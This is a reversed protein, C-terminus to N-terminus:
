TRAAAATPPCSVPTWCGPTPSGAARTGSGTCPSPPAAARAASVPPARTQPVGYEEANMRGTVVTYGEARLIVAMAEWVPLVTPVQELMVTRYPRGGDLSELTWRLPELVLGTREDDLTALGARIGRRAALQDAFHLM